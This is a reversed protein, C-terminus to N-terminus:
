SRNAYYERLEDVEEQTKPIGYCDFDGVSFGNRSAIHFAEIDAYDYSYKGNKFLDSIDKMEKRM